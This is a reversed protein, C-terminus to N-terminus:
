RAARQVMSKITDINSERIPLHQRHRRM